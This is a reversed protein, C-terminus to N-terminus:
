ARWYRDTLLWKYGKHKDDTLFIYNYNYFQLQLLFSTTVTIWLNLPYFDFNCLTASLPNVHDISIIWKFRRNECVILWMEIYTTVTFMTWINNLHMPAYGGYLERGRRQVQDCEHEAHIIQKHNNGWSIVWKRVYSMVCLILGKCGSNVTAIKM